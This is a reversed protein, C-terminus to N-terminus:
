FESGSKAGHEKLYDSIDTLKKRLAADLVTENNLKNRINLDAGKETFYKVLALKTDTKGENIVYHLITYGRKNTPLSQINKFDAGAEVLFKVADIDSTQLIYYVLINNNAPTNEFKGGHEMLYKLNDIHRSLVSAEIKEPNLGKSLFYKLLDLQENKNQMIKLFTKFESPSVGKEIFLKVIEVSTNLETISKKDIAVGKDILYKALNLYKLRTAQYLVGEADAGNNLFYIALNEQNGINNLMQQHGNVKELLNIIPKKGQKDAHNIDAGKEILKKLLLERETFPKDYNYGQIVVNLINNNKINVGESILYDIINIANKYGADFLTKENFFTYPKLSKLVEVSDKNFSDYYLKVKEDLVSSIYDSRQSGAVEDQIYYRGFTKGDKDFQLIYAKKSILYETVPSVLGGKHANESIHLLLTDKSVVTKVDDVNALLLKLKELDQSEVAAIINKEKQSDIKKIHNKQTACSLIFISIIMTFFLKKM